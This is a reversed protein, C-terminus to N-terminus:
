VLSLGGGGELGVGVSVVLGWGGGEGWGRWCGVVGAIILWVGVGGRLRVFSSYMQCLVFRFAGQHVDFHAVEAPGAWKLVGGRKPNPEGARARDSRVAASAPRPRGLSRTALAAGATAGAATQLFRRRNVKGVSRPQDM